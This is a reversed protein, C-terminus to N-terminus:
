WGDTDYIETQSLTRSFNKIKVRNYINRSRYFPVTIMGHNREVIVFDDDDNSDGDLLFILRLFKEHCNKIRDLQVILINKLQYHLTIQKDLQINDLRQIEM